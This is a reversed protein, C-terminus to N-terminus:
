STPFWFSLAILVLHEVNLFRKESVCNPAVVAV